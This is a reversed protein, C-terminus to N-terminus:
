RHSRLADSHIHHVVCARKGVHGYHPAYSLSHPVPQVPQGNAVHQALLLLVQPTLAGSALQHRAVPLLGSENPQVLAIDLSAREMTVRHVDLAMQRQTWWDITSKIASFIWEGLYALALVGFVIAVPLGIYHWDDIQSVVYVVTGLVAVLVLCLAVVVITNLTNM